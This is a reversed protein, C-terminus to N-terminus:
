TELRRGTHERHSHHAEGGATRLLRRHRGSFGSLRLRGFHPRLDGPERRGVDGGINRLQGRRIPAGEGLEDLRGLDQVADVQPLDPEAVGGHEDVQRAVLRRGAAVPQVVEQDVLSRPRPEIVILREHRARRGLRGARIEIRDTRGLLLDLLPDLRQRLGLAGARGSEEGDNPARRVALERDDGVAELILVLQRVRRLQETFRGVQRRLRGQLRKEGPAGLRKQGVVVVVAVDRPHLELAREFRGDSRVLDVLVFEEVVLRREFREDGDAVVDLRLLQRPEGALQLADLVQQRDVRLIAVGLEGASAGSVTTLTTKVAPSALRPTCVAAKL